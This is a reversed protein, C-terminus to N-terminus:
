TARPRSPHGLGARARGLRLAAAGVADLAAQRTPYVALGPDCAGARGTTMGDLLRFLPSPLRAVDDGNEPGFPPHWGFRGDHEDPERDTLTVKTIPQSRFLAEAIGPTRSVRVDGGTDTVHEGGAFAAATLTITGVFGRSFGAEVSPSRGDPAYAVTYPWSERKLERRCGLDPSLMKWHAELLERERRRLADRESRFAEVAPGTGYPATAMRALKCQVRIFDSYDEEGHEELWDAFVLRIADDGPRECVSRVFATRHRAALTEM